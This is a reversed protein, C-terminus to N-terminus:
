RVAADERLLALYAWAAISLLRARRPVPTETAEAERLGEEYCLMDVGAAVEILLAELPLGEGGGLWEAEGEIEDHIDM